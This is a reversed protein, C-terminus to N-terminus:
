PKRIESARWEGGALRELLWGEERSGDGCNLVMVGDPLEAKQFRHLHGCLHARPRVTGLAQRFCRQGGRTGAPTLDALGTPCGHTVFIDVGAGALTNAHAAVEEDTVYPPPERGALWRELTLSPDRQQDREWRPTLKSGLKTKAWIGSIGAVRLGGGNRWEEMRGNKRGGGDVARVEGDELLVPSGDRNRLRRLLPRDDHNGFVTLVPVHALLAEFEGEPVQGPDGWDGPSAILDPRLREVTEALWGSSGHFDGVALVRTVREM